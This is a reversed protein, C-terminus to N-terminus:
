QNFKSRSILVINGCGQCQLKLDAGLMVVQFRHSKHICPHPKKMEIEDYLDVKILAM